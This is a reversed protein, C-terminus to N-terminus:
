EKTKDVADGYYKKRLARDKLNYYVIAWVLAFIAVPIVVRVLELLEVEIGLGALTSQVLLNGGGTIFLVQWFFWAVNEMGSSMGKITDVHKENPVVGKAEVAGIAMPMIVPRVFGAVGGFSVNFMAFFSRMIGYAGIVKGPNAGKVKGILKAASERLGNREMTGTVLLILIFIAMGRNAVFSNGITGLLTIPDMLSVIATVIIGLLVILIPELKLIFGIIVIVIGLLKILESFEM